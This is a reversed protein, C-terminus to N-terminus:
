KFCKMCNEKVLKFLTCWKIDQSFYKEAKSYFKIDKLGKFKNIFWCCTYMEYISTTPIYDDYQNNKLPPPDFEIEKEALYAQKTM